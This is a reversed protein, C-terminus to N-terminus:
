AIIAYVNEQQIWPIDKASKKTSTLRHLSVSSDETEIVTMVFYIHICNGCFDFDM